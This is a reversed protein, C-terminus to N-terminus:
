CFQNEPSATALGFLDRVTREQLIQGFGAYFQFRARLVDSMLGSFLRDNIIGLINAYSLNDKALLSLPVSIGAIQNAALGFGFSWRPTMNASWHAPQLPYGDPATWHFPLHGANLLYEQMATTSSIKPQLARLPQVFLHFPRKLMRNAKMLNAESLAVRLTARIDGGSTSFASQVQRLYTAPPEAGYFYHALKLSIHQATLPHDALIELVTIGDQMGGNAPIVHGLVTKAEQDHWYHQFVFKGRTESTANGDVSWGTFCRAIEKVDQQSFANPNGLTHLELLERAYNENPSQKLNLRNDLYTVMAPSQASALLLNRFTGLALPRVVERDDITKLWQCEGKRIDINFHDTWFDVVRELLQRRSFVSRLIKAEILERAIVPQYQSYITRSDMSITPLSLLMSDVPADNISGPHLQGELYDKWGERSASNLDAPTWGFTARSLLRLISPAEDAEQALAIGPLAAAMAVLGATVQGSAFSRVEPVRGTESM